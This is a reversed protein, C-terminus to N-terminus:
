KLDRSDEDTTDVAKYNYEVNYPVDSTEVSGGPVTALTHRREMDAASAALKAECSSSLSRGVPVSPAPGFLPLPPPLLTQWTPPTDADSCPTRITPLVEREPLTETGLLLSKSETQRLDEHESRLEPPPTHDGVRKQNSM